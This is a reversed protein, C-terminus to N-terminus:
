DKIDKKLVEIQANLHDIKQQNFDLEHQINKSLEEYIKIENELFKIKAFVMENKENDERKKMRENNDKEVDALFEDKHTEWGLKVREDREELIKNRELSKDINESKDIIGYLTDNGEFVKGSDLAEKLKNLDIGKKEM